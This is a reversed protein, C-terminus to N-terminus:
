RTLHTCNHPPKLMRQCQREKPNSHFSVKELGTAVVSNELNAPMNLAASECCWREPNVSLYFSALMQGGKPLHLPATAWGQSSLSPEEKAFFALSCQCLLPPIISLGWHINTWALPMLFRWSALPPYDCRPKRSYWRCRCHGAARAPGRSCCGWGQPVSCQGREGQLDAVPRSCLFASAVCLAPPPLRSGTGPCRGETAKKLLPWTDPPGLIGLNM